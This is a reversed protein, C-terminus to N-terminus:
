TVNEQARELAKKLTRFELENTEKAVKWYFCVQSSQCRAKADVKPKSSARFIDSRTPCAECTLLSGGKMWTRFSTCRSVCVNVCVCVCLCVNLLGLARCMVSCVCVCVCLTGCVYACVCVCVCVYARTCVCVCVRKRKREYVRM